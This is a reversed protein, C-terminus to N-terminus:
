FLLCVSFVTMVLSLRTSIIFFGKPSDIIYQVCFLFEVSLKVDFELVVMPYM